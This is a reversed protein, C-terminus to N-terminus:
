AMHFSTRRLHELDRLRWILFKQPVQFVSAVHDVHDDWVQREAKGSPFLDGPMLADLEHMPVLYEAAFLEARRERADTDAHAVKSAWSPLHCTQEKEGTSSRLDWILHAVGHVIAVRQHPTPMFKRYMVTRDEGVVVLEHVGRPLERGTVLVDPFCTEMLARASYRPKKQKALRRYRAATSVIDSLALLAM